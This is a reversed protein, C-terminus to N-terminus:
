GVQHRWCPESYKGTDSNSPCTPTVTNNKCQCSLGSDKDCTDWHGNCQCRFYMFYVHFLITM